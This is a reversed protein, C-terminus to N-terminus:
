TFLSLGSAFVGDDPPCDFVAFVLSKMPFPQSPGAVERATFAGPKAEMFDALGLIRGSIESHLPRCLRM